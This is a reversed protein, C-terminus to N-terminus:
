RGVFFLQSDFRAGSRVRAVYVGAPFEDIAFTVEAGNSVPWHSSKAARLRGAMDYIEVDVPIDSTLRITVVDSAPNPYVDDIRIKPGPESAADVEQVGATTSLAVTTQTTYVYDGSANFNGNSGNGAAYFVIDGAEASPGVWRVDWEQTPTAEVHTLYYVNGITIRTESDPIWEGAPAGSADRATIQFGFVSASAHDVRVNILITDGPVYFAPAEVSVSGGGTNLAFSNHCGVDACTGSNGETGDGDDPAGARKSPAGGRQPLATAGAVVLIVLVLLTRLLATLVVRQPPSPYSRPAYM